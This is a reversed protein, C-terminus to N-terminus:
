SCGSHTDKPSLAGHCICVKDVTNAQQEAKKEKLTQLKAEYPDLFINAQALTPDWGHFHQTFFVPEHGAEVRVIPTGPDRGLM